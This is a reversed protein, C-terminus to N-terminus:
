ESLRILMPKFYFGFSEHGGLKTPYLVSSLEQLASLGADSLRQAGAFPVLSGVDSGLVRVLPMDTQFPPHTNRM